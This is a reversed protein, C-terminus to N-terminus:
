AIHGDNLQHQPDNAGLEKELQWREMRFRQLLHELEHESLLLRVVREKTDTVGEFPAKFVFLGHVPDGVQALFSMVGPVVRDPSSGFALANLLDTRVADAIQALTETDVVCGADCCTDLVRIQLRPLLQRLRTAGANQLATLLGRVTETSLTRDGDSQLADNVTGRDISALDSIELVSFGLAMLTRIAWQGQRLRTLRDDSPRSVDDSTFTPSPFPGSQHGDVAGDNQRRRRALEFEYLEVIQAATYELACLQRIARLGRNRRGDSEFLLKKSM